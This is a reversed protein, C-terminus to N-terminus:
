QLRLRLWLKIRQDLYCRYMFFLNLSLLDVVVLMWNNVILVFGIKRRLRLWFGVIYKVFKSILMKGIFVKLLMVGDILMWFLGFYVVFM